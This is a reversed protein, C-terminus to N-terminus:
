GTVCLALTIYQQGASADGIRSLEVPPRVGLSPLLEVDVLAALQALDMNAFLEILNWM